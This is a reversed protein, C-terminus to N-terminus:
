SRVVEIEPHNGPFVPTVRKLLKKLFTGALGLTLQWQNLAVRAATLGIRRLSMYEPAQPVPGALTEAASTRDTSWCACAARPQRM